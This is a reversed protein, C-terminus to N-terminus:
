PLSFFIRLCSREKRDAREASLGWQAPNKFAPHKKLDQFFLTKQHREDLFSVQNKGVSLFPQSSLHSPNTRSSVLEVFGTQLSSFMGLPLLLPLFQCFAHPPTNADEITGSDSGILVSLPSNIAIPAAPCDWLTFYCQYMCAASAVQHIALTGM